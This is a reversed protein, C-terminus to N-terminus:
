FLKQLSHLLHKVNELGTVLLLGDVVQEHEGQEDNDHGHDHPEQPIVSEDLVDRDQAWHVAKELGEKQSQSNRQELELSWTRLVQSRKILFGM